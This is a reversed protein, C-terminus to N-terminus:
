IKDYISVTERSITNWNYEINLLSIYNLEENSPNFMYHSLSASLDNINGVHFYSESNLKIEKHAPIDSVLVRRNYSMAELLAIPLGEYYSPLVFFSCHAYLQNLPSGKIYGTLIINKNEAAKKRLFRSYNTEHDSDGAIVLKWNGTQLKSFAAILDHLGKEEVFRAVTLIFPHTLLGLRILYDNDNSQEPIDVGNHILSINKIHYKSIVLNYIVESIAITYNAYKCGFREGLELMFRAIKGWKTREYDPGHHTFVVKLGLFRALPVLLAPGVAHIHIIDAHIHKAYLISKFTHIIAEIRKRRPTNIYRLKCGLYEPIRKNQPVYCSRCCIIVTYGMAAIRPFLREVHTEVGGSINPIGRTGTVVITQAM